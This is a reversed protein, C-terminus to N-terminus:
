LKEMLAFDRVRKGDFDTSRARYAMLVRKVESCTLLIRVVRHIRETIAKQIKMADHRPTFREKSEDPTWALRPDAKFFSEM